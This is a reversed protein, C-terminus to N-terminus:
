ASVTSAEVASALYKEAAEFDGESESRLAKAFFLKVKMPLDAVGPLKSIDAITMAKYDLM